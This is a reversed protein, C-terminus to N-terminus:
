EPPVALVYPAAAVRRLLGAVARSPAPARLRDAPPPRRAPVRRGPTLYLEALLERWLERAATQRAQQAAPGRGDAADAAALHGSIWPVLFSDPAALDRDPIDWEAWAARLLLWPTGPLRDLDVQVGLPLSLAAAAERRVAPTDAAEAPVLAALVLPGPDPVAVAVPSPPWAPRWSPWPARAPRTGLTAAAYAGVAEADADGVVVLVAGDLRSFASGVVAQAVAAGAVPPAEREPDGLFLASSRYSVGPAVRGDVVRGLEAFAERLTLEHIRGVWAERAAPGLYADGAMRALPPAPLGVVARRVSDPLAAWGGPITLRLELAGETQRHVVRVGNALTWDTVGAEFFRSESAVVGPGVRPLPVPPPPAPDPPPEPEPTEPPPLVLPPPAPIVPPPSGSCGALTLGAALVLRSAPLRM